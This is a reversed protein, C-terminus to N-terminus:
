FFCSFLIMGTKIEGTSYDLESGRVSHPILGIVLNVLAALIVLYRRNTRRNGAWAIIWFITAILAKNDTLDKGFPFGTWFEGFAYKQVVPGLIMGGILFLIVTLGTYFRYSSINGAAYFGSLTSLLMAAFIFLIHPILIYGPVINKFRIIVPQTTKFLQGEEDYLEVLYELKGAPPQGPLFASLFDGKHNFLLTDYSENIKFRKFLLIGSIVSDKVEITIECDSTGNHSRPLQIKYNTGNLEVQFREPHTPGTLRQYVAMSLTILVSIVWFIIKKVM